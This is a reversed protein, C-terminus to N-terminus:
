YRDKCQLKEYAKRAREAIDTDADQSLIQVVFQSLDYNDYLSANNLLAMRIEKDPHALLELATLLNQKTIIVDEDENPDYEDREVLQTNKTAFYRIHNPVIESNIYRLKLNDDGNLIHQRLIWEPVDADTIPDFINGLVNINSNVVEFADLQIRGQGIHTATRVARVKSVYYHEPEFSPSHKLLESITAYGIMIGDCIQHNEFLDESQVYFYPLTDLYNDLYEYPYLEMINDRVRYDTSDVSAEDAEHFPVFDKTKIVKCEYADKGLVRFLEEPDDNVTVELIRTGRECRTCELLALLSTYVTFYDPEMAKYEKNPQLHPCRNNSTAESEACHIYAKATKIEKIM